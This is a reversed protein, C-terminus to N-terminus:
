SKDTEEEIGSKNEKPYRLALSRKIIGVIWMFIFCLLYSQIDEFIINRRGVLSTIVVAITFYLPLDLAKFAIKLKNKM